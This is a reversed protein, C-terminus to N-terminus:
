IDLMLGSGWVCCQCKAAYTDKAHPFSVELAMQVLHKGFDEWSEDAKPWPFQGDYYVQGVWFYYMMLPFGLMVMSVGWPGCFEYEGSDDVKHNKQKKPAAAVDEEERKIKPEAEGVGRSASRRPRSQSRARSRSRRVVTPTEVFGPHEPKRSSPM